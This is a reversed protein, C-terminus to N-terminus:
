FRHSFVGYEKIKLKIKSKTTLKIRVESHGNVYFNGGQQFDM